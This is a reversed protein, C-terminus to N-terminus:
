PGHLGARDLSPHPPNCTVHPAGSIPLECPPGVRRQFRSRQFLSCGSRINGTPHRHALCRPSRDPAKDFCCPRYRRQVCCNLRRVGFFLNRWASSPYAGMILLDIGESRVYDAIVRETNGPIHVAPADSLAKQAWELQKAADSGAKGSLLRHPESAASNRHLSRTRRVGRHRTAFRFPARTRSTARIATHNGPM